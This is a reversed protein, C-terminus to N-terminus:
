IKKENIFKEKLSNFNKGYIEKTPVNDKGFEEEMLKRIREGSEYLENFSENLKQNKINKTQSRQMLLNGYSIINANFYIVLTLLFLTLSIKFLFILFGILTYSINLIGLFLFQKKLWDIYNLIFLNIKKM